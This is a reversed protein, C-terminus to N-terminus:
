LEYNVLEEQTPPEFWTTWLDLQAKTIPFTGPPLNANRKELRAWLENTSVDQYRLEVTAGLTQAEIRYHEREERAWFGNELIVSQGLTLLRKALQWQLGEVISRLRDMEVTDTPDAMIAAIWEDPCLRLAPYSIELEKALTTKGSGPLGCILILTPM